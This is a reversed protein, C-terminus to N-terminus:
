INKKSLEKIVLYRSNDQPYDDPPGIVMCSIEDSQKQSYYFYGLGKENVEARGVQEADFRIDCSLHEYNDDSSSIEIEVGQLREQMTPSDIAAVRVISYNNGEKTLPMTYHNASLKQICQYIQQNQGNEQFDSLMVIFPEQFRQKKIADELQKQVSDVHTRENYELFTWRSFHERIMNTKSQYDPDIATSFSRDVLMIGPELAGKNGAFFPHALALVLMAIWLARSLLILWQRWKLKNLSELQIERLFKLSSFPLPHYKREGFLHIIFPVAILIGLFLLLPQLFTM